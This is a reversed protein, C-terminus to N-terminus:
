GSAHGDTGGGAKLREPLNLARRLWPEDIDSDNWLADIRARPTPYDGELIEIIKHLARETRSPGAALAKLEVSVMSQLWRVASEDNPGGIPPLWLWMMRYIQRLVQRRKREDVFGIIQASV